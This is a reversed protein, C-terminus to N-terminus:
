KDDERAIAKAMRYDDMEFGGGIDQVVDAEISFGMRWYFDITSSNHRNVTLWLKRVGMQHCLGEAFELAARGLGRGQLNKRVYLKSLQAEGSGDPVPALAFYGVIHGGDTITYYIYGSSIQGTIASVSQFRHLMYDVQAQGIISVFHQNWIEHALAAVADIESSGSVIKITPFAM